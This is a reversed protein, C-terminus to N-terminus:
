GNSSPPSFPACRSTSRPSKAHATPQTHEKTSSALSPRRSFAPLFVVVVNGWPDSGENCSSPHFNLAQSPLAEKETSGLAVVLLPRFSFLFRCGIERGAYPHADAFWIHLFLFPRRCHDAISVRPFTESKLVTRGDHVNRPTEKFFLSFVRMLNLDASNEPSNRVEELHFGVVHQALHYFETDFTICLGGGNVGGAPSLSISLRATKVPQQRRRSSRENGTHWLDYLRTVKYIYIDSRRRKLGDIEKKEKRDPFDTPSWVTHTHTSGIFHRPRDTERSPSVEASTRRYCASSLQLIVRQFVAENKKVRRRGTQALVPTRQRVRRRRGWTASSSRICIEIM